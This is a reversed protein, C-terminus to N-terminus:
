MGFAGSHGYTGISQLQLAGLPERVVAWALGCGMGASHGAELDGTHPATM